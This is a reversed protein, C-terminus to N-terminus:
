TIQSGSNAIDRKLTYFSKFPEPLLLLDVVPDANGFLDKKPYFEDPLDKFFINLAMSWEDGLCEVHHFWLAPIFLVDGPELLVKVPHSLNLLPFSELDHLNAVSSSGQIYLFPLDSPPWLTVMKRGRIQMLFNSMVDYHLWLSLGRSSSMRLVSSHWKDEAIPIVAKELDKSIPPYDSWFDARKKRANTRSIARFYYWNEHDNSFRKLAEPFKITEFVFNKSPYFKLNSDNSKHLSIVYDGLKEILYEENWRITLENILPNRKMIYPSLFYCCLSSLSEVKSPFTIHKLSISWPRDAHSGMSFCVIRKEVPCIMEKNFFHTPSSLLLHDERNLLKVYIYSYRSLDILFCDSLALKSQGSMGGVIILTNEDIMSCSHYRLPPLIVSECKPEFIYVKKSILDIRLHPLLAKTVLSIGGIVFIFENNATTSHHIRDFYCSDEFDFIEEEFSSLNLVFFNKTARRKIGGIIILKDGFIVSSHRFRSLEIHDQKLIAGDKLTMLSSSAQRLSFRGGSLLQIGNSGCMSYSKLNNVNQTSIEINNLFIPFYLVNNTAILSLAPSFENLSSNNATTLAYHILFLDLEEWEDFQQIEFIKKFNDFNEYFFQSMFKVKVNSFYKTYRIYQSREGATQIPSLIPAQNNEFHKIMVKSFPDLPFTMFQEFVLLYSNPVSSVFSIVRNSGELDLYCLACESFWINLFCDDRLKIMFELQDVNHLDLPILFLNNNLSYVHQNILTPFYGYSSSYKALKESIVHNMDIEVFDLDIDRYEDTLWHYTNDFGAGLSFIRLKIKSNGNKSNEIISRLNYRIMEIRITYGINILPSRSVSVDGILDRSYKKNGLYGRLEASIKSLTAHDNTKSVKNM